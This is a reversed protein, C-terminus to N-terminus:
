LYIEFRYKKLLLLRFCLEIFVKVIKVLNKKVKNEYFLSFNQKIIELLFLLM